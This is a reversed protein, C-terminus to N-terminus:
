VITPIMSHDTVCHYSDYLPSVMLIGQSGVLQDVKVNVNNIIAASTGLGNEIRLVVEQVRSALPYVLNHHDLLAQKVGSTAEELVVKIHSILSTHPGENFQKMLTILTNTNALSLNVTTGSKSM